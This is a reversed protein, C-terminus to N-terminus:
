TEFAEERLAPLLALLREAAAPDRDFSGTATLMGAISRVTTAFRLRALEARSSAGLLDVAEEFLLATDGEDALTPWMRMLDLGAPQPGCLEWDIVWAVGGALLVNGAHFDGHGSVTPLASGAVIQRAAALDAWPLPSRLLRARRLLRRRM